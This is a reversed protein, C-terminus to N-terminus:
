YKTGNLDEVSIPFNGLINCNYGISSLNVIDNIYSEEVDIMLADHIIFLPKIRKLDVEQLLKSFGSLAIDVATSQVYNNLIVNTESAGKNWLPRGWFNTRCDKESSEQAMELCLDVKLYDHIFDCLQDVKDKSMKSYLASKSSGYVASIVAQKIISRDVDIELSEAIEEYIDGSCDFGGLKRMVRPELSVFDIYLIKGQQFSSKFINRYKKPLTLINAQSRSTLRGTTSDTRTYEVSVNNKFGTLNTKLSQNNELLMYANLAKSDIQYDSLSKFLFQQDKYSKYYKSEKTESIIRKVENKVQSLYDKKKHSPISHYLEINDTKINKFTKLINNIYDKLTINEINFTKYLNDKNLINNYTFPSIIASIESAIDLEKEFLNKVKLYMM